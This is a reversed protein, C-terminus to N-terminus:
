TGCNMERLVGKAFEAIESHPLEDFELPISKFIPMKIKKTKEELLGYNMRILMEQYQKLKAMAFSDDKLLTYVYTCKNLINLLGQMSEGLDLIIYDYNHYEELYEFFRFWDDQSIQYLDFPSFVPPLYDLNGIREIMSQFKYYMGTSGTNILYIIDTIDGNYSQHLKESFGSYSEFNLYLVRENRALIQGLTVAFTTQLCRHVPSYLGIYSAHVKKNMSVKVEGDFYPLVSKIIREVPQFKLIEDQEIGNKSLILLKGTVAQRLEETILERAILLVDIYKDDLYAVIKEASTFSIAEISYEQHESIYNCFRRSYEKETDCVGLVQKRM